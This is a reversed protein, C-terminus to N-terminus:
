RVMWLRLGDTRLDVTGTLDTRFVREEGVARHLRAMVEPHPHGYRNQTGTAVVAVEPRVADLFADTSSTHSGHHPVKLVTARLDVGSAVLRMESAREIDGTLLFSVEGNRLRM